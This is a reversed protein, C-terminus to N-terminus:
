QEKKSPVKTEQSTCYGLVGFYEPAQSWKHPTRAGTQRTLKGWSEPSPTQFKLSAVAHQLAGEIEGRSFTPM